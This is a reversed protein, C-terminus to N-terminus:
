VPQVEGDPNAKILGFGHLDNITKQIQSASVAQQQLEKMQQEMQDFRAMKEAVDVERDIRAQKDEAIQRKSRRRVSSQKM